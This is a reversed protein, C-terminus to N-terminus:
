CYLTCSTWYLVYTEYLSFMLLTSFHIKTTHNVKPHKAQSGIESYRWSVLKVKIYLIEKPINKNAFLRPLCPLTSEWPLLCINKSDETTYIRQSCSCSTKVAIITSIDWFQMKEQHPWALIISIEDAIKVIPRLPCQCHIGM